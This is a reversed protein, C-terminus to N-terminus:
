HAHNAQLVKHMQIMQLGQIANSDNLVNTKKHWQVVQPVGLKPKGPSSNLSHRPQNTM